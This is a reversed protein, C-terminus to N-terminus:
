LGDVITEETHIELAYYKTNILKVNARLVDQLIQYIM